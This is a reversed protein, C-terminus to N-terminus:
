LENYAKHLQQLAKKLVSRPCAVNLRMFGTGPKGFMAGDNLALHAKDVFFNVLSPQSLHLKRCDLFVLYSAQPRIMGIRPMHASLFAQLYDINGQVYALMQDLWETGNSYAAAATIYSFLNGHNAETRELYQSFDKCIKKNPAITYSSAIGAMNFAKSPSMMTLSNQAATESVKAFPIHHFGSLTLDAHIEDSLVLVGNAACIEAIRQMEGATWVRGGPNHPHCFLFMKCDRAKKEFDEFDIVYQGNVLQLPSEVVERENAKPVLIYPHYVPTQILIKDGPKTFCQLAYAIGPVIGGVFDLMERSVAWGYRQTLWNQIAVYWSEATLTYGLIEHRARERVAEMIFPPTRFDMDAVWMPILDDRKWIDKVGDYKLSDTGRRPVIEDFNYTMKYLLEKVKQM